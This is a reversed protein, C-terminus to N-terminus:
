SESVLSVIYYMNGNSILCVQTKTRNLETKDKLQLFLFFLFDDEFALMIVLNFLKKKHYLRSLEVIVSKSLFLRQM